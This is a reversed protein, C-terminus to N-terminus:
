PLITTVDGLAYSARIKDIYPFLVHNLYDKMTEETSWHNPSHIIHWDEPFNHKPHCRETKGRYVLQLPVFDCLTGCFVVTIMRKDNLGTIEVRRAGRQEITWSSSLVLNLGTQDWNLILEPPIEDMIVTTSVQELFSAKLEEFNEVLNKSKSTTGRRKVYGM